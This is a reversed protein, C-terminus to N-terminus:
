VFFLQLLLINARLLLTLINKYKPPSQEFDNLNEAKLLALGYCGRMSFVLEKVFPLSLFSPPENLLFFQVFFHLYSTSGVFHLLYVAISFGHETADILFLSQM